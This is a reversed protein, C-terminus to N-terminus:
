NQNTKSLDLPFPLDLKQLTRLINKYTFKYTRTRLSTREQVYVQVYVQVNKYTFKYTRTRLGSRTREQVYVQNM